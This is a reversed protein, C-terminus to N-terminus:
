NKVPKRMPGKEETHQTHQRGKSCKQHVNSPQPYLIGLSHLFLTCQTSYVTYQTTMQSCTSRIGFVICLSPIIRCRSGPTDPVTNAIM